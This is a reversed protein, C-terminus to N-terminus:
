NSKEWEGGGLLSSHCQSNTSFIKLDCALFFGCNGGSRAVIKFRKLDKIVSIQVYIQLYMTLAHQAFLQKLTTETQVVDTNFTNLVGSCGVLTSLLQLM